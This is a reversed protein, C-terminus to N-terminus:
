VLPNGGYIGTNPLDLQGPRKHFIISNVEKYVVDVNTHYRKLEGMASLLPCTNGGPMNSAIHNPCLEQPFVQSAHWSDCCGGIISPDPGPPITCNVACACTILNRYLIPVPNLSEDTGVQISKIGKLENLKFLGTGNTGPPYFGKNKHINSFETSAVMGYYGGCYSDDPNVVIFFDSLDKGISNQVQLDLIGVSVGSSQFNDVKQFLPSICHFGVGLNCYEPIVNIKTILLWSLGSIMLALIMLAWGYTMIFEFVAQGRKGPTM